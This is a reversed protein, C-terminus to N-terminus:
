SAAAEFVPLTFHFTAGRDPNNVAWLRGGHAAVITRCVSLGLGMGRAKTTVFPEFVRELEEPGLGSGLDAVSVRVTGSGDAAARVLLRKEGPATGAMADIGNAVLNLLVQEIQVRDGLVAPLTRPVEASVAVGQGALDARMLRFVDEVLEGLSLAEFKVEEKRLLARIRRIVEGAHKGEAVIDALIEGVEKANGGGQGLFRQAAQANSLIATLPQNVEHALSGSLEGLMTVRSLHAVEAQRRLAEAEAARRGSVDISVGRVRAADGEEHGGAGHLAIWRSSGDTRVVRYELELAGGKAAAAELTQRVGDRDEPHVSSLFRALDLREGPAYGRLARGIPTMWIEDAEVDWTWFGLNAAEAALRLRSETEFLAQQSARLDRALEAARLVDRTLEYAMAAIIPLFSAAILYPPAVIGAHVLATHGAAVLVFLVLSGGVLAARRRVGRRWVEVVADVLFVLLLLSSLEGLRTWASVVGEPVSVVDGLFPARRVDTIRDFNLNPSRSFDVALAAGRAVVVAWALWIRGTGFFSRVFLVLSVVLFFIPVHMWRLLEGYEGPSAARM